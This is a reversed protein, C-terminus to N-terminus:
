SKESGLRFAAGVAWVIGTVLVAAYLEFLLNVV